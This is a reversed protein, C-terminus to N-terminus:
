KLFPCGRRSHGYKGCWTCQGHSLDVPKINNDLPVSSSTTDNSCNNVPVITTNNSEILAM